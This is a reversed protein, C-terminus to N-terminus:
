QQHQQQMPMLSLRRLPMQRRQGQWGGGSQVVAMIEDAAEAVTM